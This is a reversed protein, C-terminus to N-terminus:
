IVLGDGVAKKEDSNARRTPLGIRTDTQAKTPTVPAAEKTTTGDSPGKSLQVGSSCSKRAPRDREGFALAGAEAEELLSSGTSERVSASRPAEHQLCGDLQRDLRGQKARWGATEM